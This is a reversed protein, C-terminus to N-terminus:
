LLFADANKDVLVNILERTGAARWALMYVLAPIEDLVRWVSALVASSIFALRNSLLSEFM